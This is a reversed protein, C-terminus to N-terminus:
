VKAPDDSFTVQPDEYGYLKISTAIDGLPGIQEEHSKTLTLAQAHIYRSDM